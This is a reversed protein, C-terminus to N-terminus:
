PPPPYQAIPPHSGAQRIGGQKGFSAVNRILVFCYSPSIIITSSTLILILTLILVLIITAVVVVIVIITFLISTPKNGGPMLALKRTPRSPAHSLRGAM